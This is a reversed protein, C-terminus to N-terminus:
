GARTRRDPDMLMLTVGAAALGGVLWPSMGLQRGVFKILSTAGWGPLIIMGSAATQGVKAEALDVASKAAKRWEKPALGPARLHKDESFVVCPGVLKALQGTPVDDPDTIALVQPDVIDTASVTVFRLIPLYCEEFHARLDALAVPSSKAIKPLKEYVETYVHDAAYLVTMGFATMRLLRSRFGKRCDNEVSSLVANADVVGVLRPGLASYPDLDTGQVGGAVRDDEM